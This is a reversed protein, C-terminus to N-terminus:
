STCSMSRFSIIRESKEPAWYGFSARIMKGGGCSRFTHEIQANIEARSLGFDVEDALM